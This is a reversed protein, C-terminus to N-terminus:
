DHIRFAFMGVQQGGVYWTVVHRGVMHSTISNVTLRGQRARQHSACLRRDDPFRVCVRYTVAADLSKFFAGKKGPRPCSHAPKEDLTVGCGAYHRYRDSAGASLDATVSPPLLLSVGCLLSVSVAAALPRRAKMRDEWGTSFADVPAASPLLQAVGYRRARASTLAM